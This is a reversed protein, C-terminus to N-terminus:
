NVGLEFINVQHYQEASIVPITSAQEMVRNYTEYVQWAPLKDIHESYGPQISLGRLRKRLGEDLRGGPKSATRFIAFIQQDSMRSVKDRWTDSPYMDKVKARREQNTM